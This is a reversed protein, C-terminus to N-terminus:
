DIDLQSNIERNNTRSSTFTSEQPSNLASLIDILERIDKHKATGKGFVQSLEGLKKIHEPTM